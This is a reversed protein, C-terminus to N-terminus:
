CCEDQQTGQVCYVRYYFHEGIMDYGILLRGESCRCYVLTLHMHKRRVVFKRDDPMVNACESEATAGHKGRNWVAALIATEQGDGDPIYAVLPRVIAYGRSCSQPNFGSGVSFARVYVLGIRACFRVRPCGTWIPPGNADEGVGVSVCVCVHLM